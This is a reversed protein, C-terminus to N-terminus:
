HKDPDNSHARNDPSQLVLRFDTARPSPAVVTISQKQRGYFTLPKWPEDEWVSFGSNDLWKFRYYLNQNSTSTNSIDTQITLLGLRVVSRIDNVRLHTMKGLEEIKGAFPVNSKSTTPVATKVPVTPVGEQDGRSKQTKEAPQLRAIHNRALGAFRGEPYQELYAQYDASHTSTKISDWFSLEALAPDAATTQAPAPPVFYFDDGKLSSEERPSQQRGSEAEVGARTRKFVQELTLGRTKIHSMLHKTYLGNKGSGDRAETGPATAFAILAGSPAEMRALGRTLARSRDTRAFPNNRCADLIVINIRNQAEELRRLVTNADIADDEIDNETRFDHGVPILFNNGKVQVGHGAYFFLGVGGRNAQLKDGFERIAKKMELANLNERQLVEFGITKLTAALDRADNVPNDLPADKYASNGIVLALRPERAGPASNLNTAHVSHVFMLGACVLAVIAKM